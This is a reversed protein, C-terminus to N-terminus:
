DRHQEFILAARRHLRYVWLFPRHCRVCLIRHRLRPRGSLYQCFTENNGCIIVKCPPLESDKEEAGVAHSFQMMFRVLRGWGCSCRLTSSSSMFSEFIFGIEAFGVVITGPFGAIRAPQVAFECTKKEVHRLRGVAACSLRHTKTHNAFYGMVSSIGIASVLSAFLRRLSASNGSKL